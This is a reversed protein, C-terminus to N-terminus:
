CGGVWWGPPCFCFFGCGGEVEFLDEQSVDQQLENNADQLLCNLYEISM